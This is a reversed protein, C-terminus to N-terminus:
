AGTPQWDLNRLDLIAGNPHDQELVAWLRAAVVGPEELEDDEHLQRFMEVDPFSDEQSMRVDAQMSTAVLGPAIWWVHSGNAQDAQELGVTLAWQASAAKGAGYASWGRYAKTAAGSGILVLDSRATTKAAARLFADGLIQPAASNLLVNAQYASQDVDGAFGIPNLTGANHIFVVRDGEFGAVRSDFTAQATDWGAPTSLDAFLHEAAGGGRRSLDIITPSPYPCTEVLSRGIGSSAGSIIVLQTSM